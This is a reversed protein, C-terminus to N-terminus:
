RLRNDRLAGRLIQLTDAKGAAASLVLARKGESLFSFFSSQLKDAAATMRNLLQAATKPLRTNSRCEFSYFPSEHNTGKAPSLITRFILKAATATYAQFSPLCLSPRVFGSAGGAGAAAM